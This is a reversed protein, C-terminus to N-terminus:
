RGTRVTTGGGFGGFGRTGSFPSTSSTGQSASVISSVVVDGVSVGEKIETQTESSEGLTVPVLTLQGNKLERVMSEGNQTTVASTPVLIVDDKVDTIISASVSMNPLIKNSSSDFQITAPYSTVGSSVTGLKNIGAIVGTFTTDPISDFTLTVKQGAKVKAVDVEAVSVTAAPNGDTKISAVTTSNTSSSSSTTTSNTISMGPVVTINQITGSVPAVVISSAQQYAISANSLNAKAQNIANQSNNFNAEAALWTANEQIYTPDNTALNRAVADNIFKQNASFESAQLTYYSANAQNLSSQASILSGLAQAQRQEGTADLTIQFLRQGKTVTDGEKVYVKAVQGNASSTVYINNTAVVNGSASVSVILTGKAANETQYVPAKTQNRNRIILFLAIFIILAVVTLRKHKSIFM